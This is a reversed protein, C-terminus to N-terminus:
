ESGDAPCLFGAPLSARLFGARDFAQKEYFLRGKEFFNRIHGNYGFFGLFDVVFLSM